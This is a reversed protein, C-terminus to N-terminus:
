RVTIHLCGTSEEYKVFCKKEQRLESLASIFAHLQAQQGSFATYSIDMTKGKLHPSRKIAVKNEQQLAQVSEISRTMSTIKFPVYSLSRDACKQAYRQGLLDLFGAAKPLLLPASYNMTATYYYDKDQVRVLKGTRELKRLATLTQKPLIGEGRYALEHTSTGDPFLQSCNSCRVDRKMVRNYLATAKAFQVPLLEIALVAIFVLFFSSCYLLTKKILSNSM